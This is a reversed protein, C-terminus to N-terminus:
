SAGFSLHYSEVVAEDLTPHLSMAISYFDEITAQVKHDIQVRM